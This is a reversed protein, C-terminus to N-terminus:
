WKKCNIYPKMSKQDIWTMKHLNTLYTFDAYLGLPEDPRLRDQNRYCSTVLLIDVGGPYFALGNCTKGESNLEGTDM